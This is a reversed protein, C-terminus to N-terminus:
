KKGILAVAIIMAFLMVITTTVEWSPSKMLEAGRAGLFIVVAILLLAIVSVTKNGEFVDAINIGVMGAFLILVLLGAIIMSAMGFSQTFFLGLPTYNIIFFSAAVAITANVSTEDGVPEYKKLLGYIIAMFLIFPLLFDYFGIQRLNGILIEFGM